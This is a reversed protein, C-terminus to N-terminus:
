HIDIEDSLKGTKTVSTEVDQDNIHDVVVYCTKGSCNLGKQVTDQAQKLDELTKQQREQRAHEVQATDTAMTHFVRKYPKGRNSANADTASFACLITGALLLVIFSHM